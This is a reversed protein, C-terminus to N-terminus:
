RVWAGEANTFHYPVGAAQLGELVYYKNSNDLVVAQNGFSKLLDAPNRYANSRVIVLDFVAPFAAVPQEVFAVKKGQWVLLQGWWSRKLLPPNNPVNELAVRTTQRTARQTYFDDLYFDFARQNNLFATDALLMAQQGVVMSVATQNPVAHVVMTKQNAFEQNEFLQIRCLILSLALTAWLWRHSRYYVLGILTAMLAYVLALEIGSFALGALRAFPLQETWVVAQNLLWTTLTTAWGLGEALFPVWSFLITALALPLQVFALGVVVPNVLWFYIPFQNFYFIGLPFTVLQAAFAVTSIGWLWNAWQQRFSLTQYLFPQLFIIGALAAYSLQFSVSHILRPDLILLILASGFLANETNKKRKLPSALLLLTFMLASRIVPASLGTLVAYFWLIILTIALYLWKGHKRKEIFGLLKSLIWVFIAIHFGSVSLVHVAGAVSYAQVLDPDMEDRLGLVMAKTVAYERPWPVLRKLQADSWQGLGYAWSKYWLANTQTTIVFDSARLYHQHFVQRNALFSRYDFQNPNQPGLVLKPSGKVLLIAGYAPMSASKAVYLLIRGSANQWHGKTKVRRMQAETKYTKQRVEAPTAVVAEYAEIAAPDLQLLHTASQAESTLWYNCWGLAVAVVSWGAGLAYRNLKQAFFALFVVLTAVGALVIPISFSYFHALLIGAVFALTFRLLTNM